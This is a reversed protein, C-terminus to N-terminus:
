FLNFNNGIYINILLFSETPIIGVSHLQIIEFIKTIWTDFPKAMTYSQFHNLLLLM